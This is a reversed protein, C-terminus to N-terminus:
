YFEGGAVGDDQDGDGGRGGNKRQGRDQGWQGSGVPGDELEDGPGSSWEGGGPISGYIEGDPYGGQPGGSQGQPGGVQNLPPGMGQGGSGNPQSPTTGSGQQQPPPTQKPATPATTAAPLNPRGASASPKPKNQPKVQRKDKEGETDPRNDIWVGPKRGVANWANDIVSNLSNGLGSLGADQMASGVWDNARALDMLIHLNPNMLDERVKGLLALTDTASWGLTRTFLAMSFAELGEFMQLLNWAGAAKEDKPWKGVPLKLKEHHIETFGADRVWGELKPGPSGDRGRESGAKSCLSIWQMIAADAKLSGDESYYSLDYDQFEVWGGPATHEFCRKMLLPWDAIATTMYRCHIYEFPTSYTWESEVDDIEFRVNPPVTSPQVASLDNGLITASPYEDGMQIAWIGTGTGIDLINGSGGFPALHLKGHTLLVNMHHTMDLREKEQEDNPLPYRGQRYAHYRRGNEIPYDIVSASLTTAFSARRPWDM